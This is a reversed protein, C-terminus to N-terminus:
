FGSNLTIMASYDTYRFGLHKYQLILGYSAEYEDEVYGVVGLLLMANVGEDIQHGLLYHVSNSEIEESDDVGDIDLGSRDFSEYSDEDISFDLGIIGGGQLRAYGGISLPTKDGDHSSGAGLYVNWDGDHFPSLYSPMGSTTRTPEGQPAPEEEPAAHVTRIFLTLLLSVAVLLKKM